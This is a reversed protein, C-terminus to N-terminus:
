QAGDFDLEAPARPEPLERRVAIEMLVADAHVSLMRRHTHVFRREAVQEIEDVLERVIEETAVGRQRADTPRHERVVM